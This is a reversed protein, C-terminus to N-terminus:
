TVIGKASGTFYNFINLLEFHLRASQEFTILDCRNSMRLQEYTKNTLQSQYYIPFAESGEQFTMTQKTEEILYTGEDTQVEISIGTNNGTTCYLELYNRSETEGILSGSFEVYGKHKSDFTALKSKNKDFIVEQNTLYNFLDMFHIANSGLNWNDGKVVLSIKSSKQIKNKLNQYSEYHRRACNVYTLTESNKILSQAEEFEEKYPFLFKELLLFKVRSQRFLDKLAKLRYLSTTSIIAFEIEKPLAQLSQLFYISKNRHQDVEDFRTKSIELAKESPDVLYIDLADELLALGQLHRSGLQGAGIIVFNM